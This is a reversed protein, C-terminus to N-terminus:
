DDLAVSTLNVLQAGSGTILVARLNEDSTSVLFASGVTVPVSFIISDETIISELGAMWANLDSLKTASNLVSYGAAGIDVFGVKTSGSFGSADYFFDLEIPAYIRDTGNAATYDDGVQGNYAVIDIKSKIASAAAQQCPLCTSGPDLDAYSAGANSLTIPTKVLPPDTNGQGTGCEISVSKKDSVDSGSTFSATVEITFTKSGTATGCVGYVNVGALNVSAAPLTPVGSLTLSRGDATATVTVVQSGEEATIVGATLLVDGEDDKGVTLGTFTGGPEDADDSCSISFAALGAAGLLALKKLTLMSFSRNQFNEFIFISFKSAKTFPRFLFFGTYSARIFINIFFVRRSKLL